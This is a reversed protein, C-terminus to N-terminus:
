ASLEISLEDETIFVAGLVFMRLIVDAFLCGKDSSSLRASM